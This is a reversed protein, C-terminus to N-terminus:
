SRSTGPRRCNWIRAQTQASRGDAPFAPKGNDGVSVKAILDVYAKPNGLWEFLLLKALLPEDVGVGHANSITMRIALANVFRKILRPNGAIGSATTM